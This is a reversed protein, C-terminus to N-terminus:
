VTTYSRWVIVTDTSFITIEYSFAACSWPFSSAHVGGLQRALLFIEAWKRHLALNRQRNEASKSTITEFRFISTGHHKRFSWLFSFRVFNRMQTRCRQALLLFIFSSSVVPARGDALGDFCAFGVICLAPTIDGQAASLELLAIFASQMRLTKSSHRASANRSALSRRSPNLSIALASAPNFQSSNFMNFFHIEIFIGGIQQFKILNRCFM